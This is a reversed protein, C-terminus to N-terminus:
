LTLMNTCEHQLMTNRQTSHIPDSNLNIQIWISKNSHNLHPFFFLFLLLFSLLWIDKPRGKRGTPWREGRGKGEKEAHAAGLGLERLKRPGWRQGAQAREGRERAAVEPECTPAVGRGARASEGREREVEALGTGRTLARGERERRGKKGSV